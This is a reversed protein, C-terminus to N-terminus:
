NVGAVDTPFGLSSGRDLLELGGDRMKETLTSRRVDRRESSALRPIARAGDNGIM